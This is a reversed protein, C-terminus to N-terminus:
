QLDGGDVDIGDILNNVADVQTQNMFQNDPDQIIKPAPILGDVVEQLATLQTNNVFRHDADEIVNTANVITGSGGGSLSEWQLLEGVKKFIWLQGDKYTIENEEPDDPFENPKNAVFSVRHHELINHYQVLKGGPMEISPTVTKKTEKLSTIRFAEHDNKLGM